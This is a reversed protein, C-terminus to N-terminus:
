ATLGMPPTPQNRAPRAMPNTYNGVVTTVLPSGAILVGLRGRLSTRATSAM